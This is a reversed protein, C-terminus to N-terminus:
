ACRTISASRPMMVAESARDIALREVADRDLGDLARGVVAGAFVEEEVDLADQNTRAALVDSTAQV